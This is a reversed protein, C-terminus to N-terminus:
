AYEAPIEATRFPSLTLFLFALPHLWDALVCVRGLM